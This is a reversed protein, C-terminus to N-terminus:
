IFGIVEKVKKLLKNAKTRARSAGYYLIKKLYDEHKRYYFYSSQIKSMVDSIVEIIDSKFCMYSKGYFEKELDSIKKDTLSSFINLLNSIGKKNVIDYHISPPNNSDTIALKIKKSVSKINELLFIVNNSNLDSKSMKKNPDLLSLINSGNKVIYKAPITFIDGYFSNFRYAIKCVLELHQIQDCGIPVINTNYLLIDSAMLVPYNLLGANINKVNQLSKSKFQTMRSLEGYYTHCTLLWYLQSHHHVHSQLFVISKYPDIGCALYLAVTDLINRKLEVSSHRVTISHLDAICYFCLYSDQMKTWQRIVGIYNGITLQGSPQIASFLIKKINNM